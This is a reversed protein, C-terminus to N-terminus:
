PTAEPTVANRWVRVDVTMYSSPSSKPAFGKLTILAVHGYDTTLCMQADKTLQKTLIRETFRTENRCTDLSGEQGATLLVLKGNETSVRDDSYNNDTYTFDEDTDNDANSPKVPEDSMSLHYEDPLDIGKYDVPEPDQAPTAPASPDGGEEPTASTGGTADPAGEAGKKKDDAQNSTKKADGKMFYYVVGGGVGAFVLLCVLVLATILGKRKKKPPQPAPVTTTPGTGSSGGPPTAVPASAAPTASTATPAYAAPGFGPPPTQPQNLTTPVPQAPAAPQTPPAPPQAPQAPPQAPTQPAVAPQAPAELPPPPAQAPAPAASRTTIDAAVATPLWEEPRRLQTEGSAAGCLEIVEAVSPRASTDKTLCRTVLEHLEEPLGTLDPEEHVIRYLVGHSTGEGFAPNGIAAYAAVQGLAFIDTAPTITSGAAQEPAMFTPTGVTVGSSTLSTADAARAIGFDIVRPGDAALLVNSPKLDRHVIGAGHIVQLAEAIGAVLLLVTPVPLRGHEAVAASLSPGPVYATALWPSPGDADSDIVPATFLGQVRQASQVEQKFRRRFEADESFEPRIVKIAVPRGGPTYSLYVKGMGGSGLKASLRYGAIAKPDDDELPQFIGSPDVSNVM